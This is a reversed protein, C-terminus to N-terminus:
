KQWWWKWASLNESYIIDGYYQKLQNAMCPVKRTYDLKNLGTHAGGYIGMVKEGDLSDFERIFNETMKNERYVHDHDMNKYFFQRQEIVEQTILYQTSNQLNKQELYALFREGTSFFQHGVDTGHFVTEPCQAKIQKYFDKKAPVHSATGEWDDYLANLIDDNDEQMWVNLFEATFYPLELFLHRMGDNHYLEYWIEYEKEIVSDVGHKEGYLFIQAHERSVTNESKKAHNNSCGVLCFILIFVVGLLCSRRVM